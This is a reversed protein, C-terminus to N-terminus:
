RARVALGRGALGVRRARPGSRAARGRGPGVIPRPCRLRDAPYIYVCGIVVPPDDDNPALVTYTFGTRGEFDAAHRVLDALNEELTMPHPWGMEAFGPTSLIHDVSSTWAAYDSANHEPGLPRLRFDPLDLGAPPMFGDPVFPRPSSGSDSMDRCRVRGTVRRPTPRCTSTRLEIWIGGPDLSLEEHAQAYRSRPSDRASLWSPAALDRRPFRWLGYATAVVAIGALVAIDSASGRGALVELPSLYHFPSLPQLFAADPWLTGLIELVYGLLLVAIGIGVPAALRDFSASAALSVAALATLLAVTNVALFALAGADLEGAVGYAAAGAVTGALAALTTLVAILVLTLLHTAFLSRRSLPRSLLVELTGRQREGAIMVAGLGVPFLVFMGIGIPHVWGLAVAGDLSFPDAGMLRLFADPIIGTDLLVALERGFTAYIVPMLFAWAALALCVLAVRSRQARWTRRMLPLSIPGTM